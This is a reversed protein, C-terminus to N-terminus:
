RAPRLQVADLRLPLSASSDVILHVTLQEGSPALEVRCGPSAPVLEATWPQASAAFPGLSYRGPVRVELQMSTPGPAALVPRQYWAFVDPNAAVWAPLEAPATPPTYRRGATHPLGGLLYAPIRVADTSRQIGIRGTTRVWLPLVL